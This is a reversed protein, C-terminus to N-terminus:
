SPDKGLRLTELVAAPIQWLRQYGRCPVFACSRRDVFEWGVPGCFWPFLENDPDSTRYGVLRAGGVIGGLNQRARAIIDDDCGNERCFEEGEDDWTKGAHIAIRRGYLWRPPAWDRNEVTKAGEVLVQAWPQWLTIAYLDPLSTRGSGAAM